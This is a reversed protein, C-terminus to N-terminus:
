NTNLHALPQEKQHQLITGIGSGIPLKWHIDMTSSYNQSIPRQKTLTYCGNMDAININLLRIENTFMNGFCCYELWIV